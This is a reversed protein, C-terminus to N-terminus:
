EVPKKRLRARQLIVRGAGDKPLVSFILANIVADKEESALVTDQGAPLIEVTPLVDFCRRLATLTVTPPDDGEGYPDLVVLHEDGLPYGSLHGRNNKPGVIRVGGPERRFNENKARVGILSNAVPPYSPSLVALFAEKLGILVSGGDTDHEATDLHLTADIYFTGADNAARPEYRSM